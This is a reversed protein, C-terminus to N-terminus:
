AQLPRCETIRDLMLCSVADQSPMDNFETKRCFRFDAFESRMPGLGFCIEKRNHRIGLESICTESSTECYSAKVAYPFLGKTPPFFLPVFPLFLHINDSISSTTHHIRLKFLANSQLHQLFCLFLRSSKGPQEKTKREMTSVAWQRSCATGTIKRTKGKISQKESTSEHGSRGSYYSSRIRRSGSPANYACASPQVCFAARRRNNNWQFYDPLSFCDM